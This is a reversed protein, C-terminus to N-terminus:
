LRLNAPLKFNSGIVVGKNDYWKILGIENKQNEASETMEIIEYYMRRGNLVLM